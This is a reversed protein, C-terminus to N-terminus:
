PTTSAGLLSIWEEFWRTYDRDTDGEEDPARYLEYLEALVPRVTETTWPEDSILLLREERSLGPGTLLYCPQPIRNLWDLKDCRTQWSDEMDFSMWERM